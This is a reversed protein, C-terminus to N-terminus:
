RTTKKNKEYKTKSNKNKLYKKTYKRSPYITKLFIEDKTEIYPVCYIYNNINLLAIKQNPFKAKNPHNIVKIVQESFILEAINSLSINRNKKLWEDKEQNFKIPKM